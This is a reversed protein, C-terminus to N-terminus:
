KSPVGRSKQDAPSSKNAGCCSLPAPDSPAADAHHEHGTRESIGNRSGAAAEGGCCGHKATPTTSAAHKPETTTKTTEVTM